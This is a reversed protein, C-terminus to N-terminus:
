GGFSFLLGGAITTLDVDGITLQAQVFPRLNGFGFEAGGIINLGVETNSDDVFDFGTDASVRTIGVGAGAYPTFATNNIGFTYLANVSLQFLDYGDTLYYDFAPNVIVPLTAIDLRADAGIFLEEVDDIEYGVRPGIRIGVQAAATQVGLAFFFLALLTTTYKKM